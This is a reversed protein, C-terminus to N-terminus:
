PVGFFTTWNVDVLDCQEKPNRDIESSIGLRRRAVGSCTIFAPGSMREDCLLCHNLWGQDGSGPVNNHTMFGTFLTQTCTTLCKKATNRMNIAWCETCGRSFGIHNELCDVLEAYKGFIAQMSCKKATKAITKRTRVYKDIDPMNSCSGCEGCHAVALGLANADSKNVFPQFAASTDTKNFACVKTTIFYPETSPAREAQYNEWRSGVLLFILFIYATVMLALAARFLWFVWAEKKTRKTFRFDCCLKKCRTRPQTVEDGVRGEEQVTEDGSDGTFDQVIAVSDGSSSVNRSKPLRKFIAKAKAGAGTLVRAGMTTISSRSYWGYMVSSSPDEQIHGPQVGVFFTALAAALWLMSAVILLYGASELHCTGKDNCSKIRDELHRTEISKCTCYDSFLVTLTCLSLMFCFVFMVGIYSSGKKSIRRVVPHVFLSRVILTFICFTLLWFVIWVNFISTTAASVLLLVILGCAFIVSLYHAQQAQLMTTFMALGIFMAAMSM